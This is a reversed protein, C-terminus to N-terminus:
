ARANRAGMKKPNLLAAIAQLQELAGETRGDALQTIAPQIMIRVCRLLAANSARDPNVPRVKRMGRHQECTKALKEVNGGGTVEYAAGCHICKGRWRILQSPSGDRRRTYPEVSVATFGGDRSPRYEGPAIQRTDTM